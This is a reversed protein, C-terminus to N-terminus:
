ASKRRLGALGALGLGLLGLTGPLPVQSILVNDFTLNDFAVQDATGTFLVSYATGEFGIDVMDWNCFGNRAVTNTNACDGDRWNDTLEINGSGITQGYQDLVAVTAQGQDTGFASNSSYSFSFGERFGTESHLMLENANLFFMVTVPSPANAFNGQGSPVASLNDPEGDGDLDDDDAYADVRGQATDSFWIRYDQESENGNSSGGQGHYYFYEVFEGDDLGEFDLVVPAACVPASIAALATMCFSKLRM